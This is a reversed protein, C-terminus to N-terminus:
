LQKGCATQAHSGKTKADEKERIAIEQTLNKIKNEMQSIKISMSFVRILLIFIFVLYVFNVPSDVKLAGTFCYVVQPFISLGVIMGWFLIWFLSDEIQIQAKKIKRIIYAFSGVSFVFLLIRLAFSM